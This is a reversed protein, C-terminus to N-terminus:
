NDVNNKGNTLESIREQMTTEVRFNFKESVKQTDAWSKNKDDIVKSFTNRFDISMTNAIIDILSSISTPHGSGVNIIESENSRSLVRTIIEAVDEVHIFDLAKNVDNLEPTKEKQFSSIVSPIVSRERQGEGFVYFLRLWNGIGSVEQARELMYNALSIKANGFDGVNEPDMNEKLPGSLSGYEWCSGSGIFREVGFAVAADIVDIGIQLNYKNNEISYDPLGSWALHVMATPKFEQIERKAFGNLYSHIDVSEIGFMSQVKNQNSTVALVAHGDALLKPLLNRGIFGTSGTILVSEKSNLAM